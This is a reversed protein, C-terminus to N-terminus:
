QLHRCSSYEPTVFYYKRLGDIDRPVRDQVVDARSLYSSSLNQISFNGSEAVGEVECWDTHTYQLYSQQYSPSGYGTYNDSYGYVPQAQYSGPTLVIHRYDMQYGYCTLTYNVSGNYPSGDKDFYVYTIKPPVMDASVVTVLLIISVLFILSFQLRSQM